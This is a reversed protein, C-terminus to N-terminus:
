LAPNQTSNVIQQESHHSADGLPFGTYIHALDLSHNTTRLSSDTNNLGQGCKCLNIPLRRM